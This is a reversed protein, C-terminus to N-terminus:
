FTKNKIRYVYALVEAVAQYLSSPIMQGLDVMKFLSQALPKNEIMPIRHAQAIEKIKEAVFGAGKAIVTPAAMKQNRYSLAIALHTPNTIVVDAKPVEAMMRRRALDRQISRIRSRVIPDGETQKFEEQVERKTMRLSKEHSWKQFAYDLASLVLMVLLTKLFIRLSVSSIYKLISGIEQDMLTALQPIENKVTSYAVWGIIIIKFISKLLEAFAQKSVLRGMGKIPNIKDLNPKLPELTFLSGIQIYNSLIAVAFIAVLIPGLIVFITWLINVNLAQLNAPSIAFTTSVKFLHAMLTSLQGYLHASLVFLVSLGALLVLASPIERSKAVQGKKRAEDRRRPTAQETRDGHSEDAM